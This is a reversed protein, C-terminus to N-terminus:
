SWSWGHAKLPIRGRRGGAIAALTIARGLPALLGLKLPLVTLSRTSINWFTLLNPKYHAIQEIHPILRDHSQPFGHNGCSPDNGQRHVCILAPHKDFDSSRAAFRRVTHLPGPNNQGVEVFWRGVGHRPRHPHAVLRHGPTQLAGGFEPHQRRQVVAGAGPALRRNRRRGSGPKDPQCTRFRLLEAIRVLQPRGAQQRRMRAIVPRPGAVRAQCVQGLPRHALDQRRVIHFRM